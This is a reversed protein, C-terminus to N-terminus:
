LQTHRELFRTLRASAVILKRLNEQELAQRWAWYLAEFRYLQWPKLFCYQDLIHSPTNQRIIERVQDQYNESDPGCNPLCLVATITFSYHFPQPDRPSEREIEQSTSAPPPRRDARGFRLLTHEIIYLQQSFRRLKQVLNVLAPVSAQATEPDNYKEVLRWNKENPSKCVVATSTDGPLIGTRFNAPESAAHLFEETFLQARLLPPMQSPTEAETPATVGTFHESIHDSHRSMSRGVTAKAETEVLELAQEELIDILPREPYVEMGLQIRCKIEMGAINRPLPPALYDFGSGRKQTSTVLHQLLALKAQLLQESTTSAEQNSNTSDIISDADLREAFLALLFDLFRNRRETVPDQSAILEPLGTFYEEGLLPKVNPVSKILYQFFYTADLDSRTSFLDKAQALQSFYDALLQEFVLLYGKLQKAQGRRVESAAAPLGYESIGYVNPYQNQISYYQELDRFQGKPFGLLEEYEPQLPYRRRYEAWLKKLERKVRTPDPVYEVGNKFLRISFGGRRTNPSTDLDPIDQVPIDISGQATITKGPPEIRITVDKVSSVGPCNAIVRVVDQGKIVGPKSQLQADNIFGEYLLPGNLIQDTPIGQRVLSKLSTRPIEPALFNGLNFFIGALIAEPTRSENITVIGSVVTKLPQLLTITRLDEGLSRFRNYVQRVRNKVRQRAPEDESECHHNTSPAYGYVDYLGNVQKRAIRAQHPILWVNALEPVRDLLLKRFDNNTVPNCPLIRKPIFLAQQRSNISGNRNTLLDVMPFEARYSLETLAYCLQELTTVGPDHENYDTWINGSLQQVLETGTTKLYAYDLGKNLPPAPNITLPEAM